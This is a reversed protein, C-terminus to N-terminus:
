ISSLKRSSLCNQQDHDPRIRAVYAAVPNGWHSPKGTHTANRRGFRQGFQRIMNRLLSGFKITHTIQGADVLCLSFAQQTLDLDSFDPANAPLQLLRSCTM